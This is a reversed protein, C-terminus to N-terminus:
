AADREDIRAQQWAELDELLWAVARSAGIKIPKPFPPDSYISSRSKGTLKMVERMRLMQKM